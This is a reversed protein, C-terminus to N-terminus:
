NNRINKVLHVFDFLLFMGETTLWPKGPVTKYLKFLKQNTRNGDCVLAVTSGGACRIIDLTEKVQDYVFQADVKTVPIMKLLFTPGGFLCKVMVGLMSTALEGPQNSAKGYVKGGHYLLAKKLYVEDIIVVTEKQREQLKAFVDNVFTQDSLKNVKSTLNQLIKISPLKYDRRLKKYLSRSVSYYAFARILTDPSYMKKGVKIPAMLQITEKLVKEHQSLEKDHLFRLAVEITSWRKLKRIGNTSLTDITCEVGTHFGTYKQDESIKLSFLPVGSVYDISQIWVESGVVFSITSVSFEHSKISSKLEEFGVLDRDQFEKMEDPKFTRAEASTKKTPRPPPPPPPPMPIESPHFGEFISPPDAPREGGNGTRVTPFNSPWHKICVAPNEKLQDVNAEIIGPISKIWRKRELAAKKKSPLGFLTVGERNKNLIDNKEKLGPNKAKSKDFNSKCTPVCCRRGM